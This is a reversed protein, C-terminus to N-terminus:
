EVLFLFPASTSGASAKLYIRRNDAVRSVEVDVTRSGVRNLNIAPIALRPATAMGHAISFEGTSGATTSEQYYSAFNTAKTKDQPEGFRQERLIHRFADELIRRLNQDPIGALLGSIYGADAM